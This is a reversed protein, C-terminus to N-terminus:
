LSISRRALAAMSFIPTFISALIVMLLMGTPWLCNVSIARSSLLSWSLSSIKSSGVATSVSFSASASSAEMRLMAARPIETMKIVWRRWSIRDTHSLTTTMRSPWTTRSTGEPSVLTSSIVRQITPRSTCCPAEEAGLWARASCSLVMMDMFFRQTSMGPSVTRSTVKSILAPSIRPIPPRAPCPLSPMGLPIIPIYSAPPETSNSPWDIGSLLGRLHRSAERAKTDSSRRSTPSSKSSVKSHFTAKGAM